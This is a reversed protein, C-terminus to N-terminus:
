HLHNAKSNPKAADRAEVWWEAKGWGNGIERLIPPLIVGPQSDCICLCFFHIKSDPELEFRAM